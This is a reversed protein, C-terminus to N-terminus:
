QQSNMMVSLSMLITATYFNSEFCPNRKSLIISSDLCRFRIPGMSSEIHILVLQRSLVIAVLLFVLSFYKKQLFFNKLYALIM